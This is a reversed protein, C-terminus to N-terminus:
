ASFRRACQEGLGHAAPDGIQSQVAYTVVHLGTVGGYLQVSLTNGFRCPQGASQIPTTQVYGLASDCQNSNLLGSARINWSYLAIQRALAPRCIMRMTRDM